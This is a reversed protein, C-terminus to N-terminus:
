VRERCSARGIEVQGVPHRQDDAHGALRHLVVHRQHAPERGVAVQHLEVDGRGVGLEDVAPGCARALQARHLIPLACTQVGTVTLDGIADEAQFFLTSWILATAVTYSAILRIPFELTSASRTESRPLTSTM